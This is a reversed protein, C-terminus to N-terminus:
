YHPFTLSPFTGDNARCHLYNVISAYLNRIYIEKYIYIDEMFLTLPSTFLKGQTQQIKIAKLEFYDDHLTTYKSTVHESRKM